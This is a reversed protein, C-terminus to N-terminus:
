GEKRIEEMVPLLRNYEYQAASGRAYPSRTGNDEVRWMMDCYGNRIECVLVTGTQKVRYQKHVNVYQM